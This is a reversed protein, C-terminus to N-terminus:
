TDSIQKAGGSGGDAHSSASHWRLYCLQPVDTPRALSSPITASPFLVDFCTQCTCIIKHRGIATPCGRNHAAAAVALRPRAIVPVSFSRLHWGTARFSAGAAGGLLRSARPSNRKTPSNFFSISLNKKAFLWCGRGSRNFWNFDDSDHFSRIM